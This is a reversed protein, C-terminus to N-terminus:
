KEDDPKVILDRLDELIKQRAEPPLPEGTLAKDERIAWDVYLPIQTDMKRVFTAYFSQLDERLDDNFLFKARNTLNFSDPCSEINCSVIFVCRDTKYPCRSKLERGILHYALEQIPLRDAMTEIVSSEIEDFYVLAMDLRNRGAGAKDEKKERKKKM